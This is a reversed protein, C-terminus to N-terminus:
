EAPPHEVVVDVPFLENGKWLINGTHADHIVVGTRRHKYTIDVGREWGHGEMAKRLDADSDFEHGDVFPQVTWIVGNGRENTSVGIVRTQIDPFARNYDELRKLYQAPSRHAFGYSDKVTNRIVLLTSPDRGALYVDHEHGGARISHIVNRLCRLDEHSWFWGEARARAIM